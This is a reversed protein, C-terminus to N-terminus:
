GLLSLFESISQPRAEWKPQMAQQIAFWVKDSIGIPRDLSMKGLALLESSPVDKGTVMFYLTAGLSYIDTAPSFANLTRLEIPSYGNSVVTIMSSNHNKDEHFLHATGFDILTSKGSVSIMINSPKVDLHNMNEEHMRKLASGIEQIIILSEKESLCGDDTSEVYRDLSLGDIYQMVYYCTGYEDFTDYVKIIHPHSFNMIKKAEKIFKARSKEVEEVYQYPTLVDLTEKERKQIDKVFFEKIAVERMKRKRNDLVYEYAKYTKGFGGSGLSGVIQYKGQFLKIGCPLSVAKSNAIKDANYGYAQTLSKVFQLKEAKYLIRQREISTECDPVQISLSLFEEASCIRRYNMQPFMQNVFYEKNLENVLYEADVRTEDIKFALVDVGVGEVLAANGRTDDFIFPRYDNFVVLLLKQELLIAKKNRRKFELFLEDTIPKSDDASLYPLFSTYYKKLVIYNHSMNKWFPVAKLRVDILVDELPLMRKGDIPKIGNIERLISNLNLGLKEVLAIPCHYVNKNQHIHDLILDSDIARLKTEDVIRVYDDNRKKYIILVLSNKFFVVTDICQKSLCYLIAPKNDKSLLFDADVLCAAKIGDLVRFVISRYKYEYDKEKLHKLPNWLIASITKKHSEIDYFEKSYKIKINRCANLLVNLYENLQNAYTPYYYCNEPLSCATYGCDANPHYISESEVGLLKIMLKSLQFHSSFTYLYDNHYDTEELYPCGSIIDLAISAYNENLLYSPVEELLHYIELSAVFQSFSKEKNNIYEKRLQVFYRVMEYCEDYIGISAIIARTKMGQKLLEIEEHSYGLKESENYREYLDYDFFALINESDTDKLNIVLRLQGKSYLYLFMLPMLQIANNANFLYSRSLFIFKNKWQNFDFLIDKGM